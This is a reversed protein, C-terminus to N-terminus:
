GCFCFIRHNRINEWASVTSHTIEEGWQICWMHGTQSRWLRVPVSVILSWLPSSVHYFISSTITRKLLFTEKKEGIFVDEMRWRGSGFLVSPTQNFVLLTKIKIRLLVFVNIVNIHVTHNIINRLHSRRWGEEDINMTHLLSVLHNFHWVCVAMFLCICCFFFSM